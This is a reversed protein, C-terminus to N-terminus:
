RGRGRRIGALLKCKSFYEWSAKQQFLPGEGKTGMSEKVLSSFADRSIKGKSDLGLGANVVDSAIAECIKKTAIIKDTEPQSGRQPRSGEKVAEIEEIHEEKLSYGNQEKAIWQDVETKKYLFSGIMKAYRGIIDEGSVLPNDERTTQAYDDFRFCVPEVWERRQASDGMPSAYNYSTAMFKYALSYVSNPNIFDTPAKAIVRNAAIVANKNLQKLIYNAPLDGGLRMYRTEADEKKYLDAAFEDYSVFNDETIKKDKFFTAYLREISDFVYDDWNWYPFLCSQAYDNADLGHSPYKPIRPSKTIERVPLGVKDIFAHLLDDYCAQGIQSAMKGFQGIIEDGTIWEKTM